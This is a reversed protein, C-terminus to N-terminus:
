IQSKQRRRHYVMIAAYCASATFAAGITAYYFGSIGQKGLGIVMWGHFCLLWGCFLRIGWSCVISVPVLRGTIKLGRLTQGTVTQFALAVQNMALLPMLTIAIERVAPDISYKHVIWTAALWICIGILASGACALAVSVFVVQWIRRTQAAGAAKGVQAMAATAISMPYMYCISGLNGLVRNAGVVATGLPSVFLSVLSSGTIEIFTSAGMPFGVSCLNRIEKFQPATWGRLLGLDRVIKSKAFYCLASLALGTNIISVAVACGTVGLPRMGLWGLALAPSLFLHVAASVLGFQMLMRPKSLANLMAGCVRYLLLAPLGIALVTLYSRVRGNLDASMDSMGLAWGPFLMLSMGLLGLLLALWCGQHFITPLRRLAQAGYEHAAVPTTGQVISSFALMISIYLGAGIGLTALEPGGLRGAILTDVVTTSMLALQAVLIPMAHSVLAKGVEVSNPKSLTTVSM